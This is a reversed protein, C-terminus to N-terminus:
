QAAIIRWVTPGHAHLRDQPLPSRREDRHQEPLEPERREPARHGDRRQDVRQAPVLVRASDSFVVLSIFDHSDLRDVLQMAAQKTKELKAGTMSGSKDLVVALNLPTRREKHKEVMASLDIKVVVEQPQSKLLIGRDPVLKLRLTEGATLSSATMMALGALLLIAKM